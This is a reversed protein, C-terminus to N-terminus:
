PATWSISEVVFNMEIGSNLNKGNITIDGLVSTTGATITENVFSEKTVPTTSSITSLYTYSFSVNVYTDKEIVSTCVLALGYVNKTNTGTGATSLKRRGLVWKGNPSKAVVMIGEVEPLVSSSDVINFKVLGQGSPMSYIMADSSLFVYSNFVGESYSQKGLRANKVLCPICDFSTIGSQIMQRVAVTNTGLAPLMSSVSESTNGSMLPTRSVFLQWKGTTDLTPIYVAIGVRWYETTIIRDGTIFTIPIEIGTTNGVGAWSEVGVKCNFKSWFPLALVDAVWDYTTGSSEINTNIASQLASKEFSMDVWGSDPPLADSNYGSSTGDEHTFDSIRYPSSIGGTPLSYEWIGSSAAVSSPSSDVQAGDYNICAKLLAENEIPILGCYISKIEDLTLKFTKNFRYPKYLSWRNHKASPKFLSGFTNDCSGGGENLVDRVDSVKLNKSPLKAM